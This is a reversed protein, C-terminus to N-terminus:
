TRKLAEMSCKWLLSSMVMLSNKAVQLLSVWPPLMAHAKSSFAAMAPLKILIM